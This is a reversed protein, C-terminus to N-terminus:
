REEGLLSRGGPLHRYLTSTAVGLRRAVEEVSIEPDALLARAALLDKQDLAPPRGGRRGRERAAALGARTRERIVSREFEAMAGFVHFVLRGGASTTDISESLSRFGVGRRELGEVTDILQRLSRALRDLRWVVLVDGADPRAYDLAAKLQPRDRLAGSLQEVFVRECGARKLADVQLDTNQNQSSVRAYGILM